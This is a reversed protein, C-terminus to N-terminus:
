MPGDNDMNQYQNDRGVQPLALLGSSDVGHVNGEEDTALANTIQTAASTISDGVCAFLSQRQAVVAGSDMGTSAAYSPREEGTHVPELIRGSGPPRSVGVDGRATPKQAFSPPPSAAVGTEATAGSGLGFYDWWSSSSSSSATATKKKAAAKQRAEQREAASYEEKQLRQALEMDAKMQAAAADDSEKLVPSVTQCTPCFMLTANSTVQMWNECSLCQALVATGDKIAKQTQEQGKLAVETGNGIDVTRTAGGSSRSGGGIAQVAAAHSRQVFADAANTQSPPKKSEEIQAMIREQEAIMAQKEAMSMGEMALIAQLTEDDLGGATEEAPPPPPPLAQTDGFGLLDEYAPASPASPTWTDDTPPTAMTASTNPPPAPAMPDWMLSAGNPVVASPAPPAETTPPPLSFADFAPPATTSAAPPPPLSQADFAPPPPAAAVPPPANMLDFSSSETIAPPEATAPAPAPAGKAREQAAM